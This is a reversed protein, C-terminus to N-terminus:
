GNRLLTFSYIVSSGDMTKVSSSKYLCNYLSHKMVVNYLTRSWDPLKFKNNKITLFNLFWTSLSSNFSWKRIPGLLLHNSTPRFTPACLGKEKVSTISQKYLAKLLPFHQKKKCRVRLTKKLWMLHCESLLWIILSSHGNIFLWLGSLWSSCLWAFSM